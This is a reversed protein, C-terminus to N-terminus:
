DKVTWGVRQGEGTDPDDVTGDVEELERCVIVGGHTSGCGGRGVGGVSM